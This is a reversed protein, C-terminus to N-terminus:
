HLFLEPKRTQLNKLAPYDLPLKGEDNKCNLDAGSRILIEFCKERSFSSCFFTQLKILIIENLCYTKSIVFHYNTSSIKLLLQKTKHFLKLSLGWLLLNLWRLFPLEICHRTELSPRQMSMQMTKSWSDFSRTTVTFLQMTFHLSAMKAKHM